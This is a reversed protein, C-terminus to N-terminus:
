QIYLQGTCATKQHCYFIEAITIEGTKGTRMCDNFGALETSVTYM